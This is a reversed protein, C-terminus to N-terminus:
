KLKRMVFTYGKYKLMVIEGERVLRDLTEQPNLHYNELMKYAYDLRIPHVYTISLIAQIPDPLSTFNPGEYGTLLEVKGEGLVDVFRDYIKLLKEEDPISVWKEAPPRIPVSIYAKSPNVFGIFESLKEVHEDIDNVNKVIMSETILTGNFSESFLRIGRLINKLNLKPHPRNIRRWIEGEVADIKLSVLDFLKLDERVKEDFMLSSNSIIALPINVHDRIATVTEGINMDLSPEGDPVFTIYDVRGKFKELFNLLEELIERSTYFVKRKYEYNLTRGLQCYVCSYTCHKPPINNIGLSRGLRRSPVPGFVYKFM